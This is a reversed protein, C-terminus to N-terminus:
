DDNYICKRFLREGAVRCCDADQVPGPVLSPHLEDGTLHVQRFGGEQSWLAFGIPQSPECRGDLDVETPM